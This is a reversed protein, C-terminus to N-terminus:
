LQLKKGQFINKNLPLARVKHQVRPNRIPAKPTLLRRNQGDHARPKHAVPATSSPSGLSLLAGHGAGRTEQPDTIYDQIEKEWGDGCHIKIRKENCCILTNLTIQALNPQLLLEQQNLM